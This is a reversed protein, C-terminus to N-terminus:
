RREKSIKEILAQFQGLISCMEIFTDAPLTMEERIMLSGMGMQPQSISVDIRVVMEQQKSM